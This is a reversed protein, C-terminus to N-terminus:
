MWSREEPGLGGAGAVRPTASTGRPRAPAISGEHRVREGEGLSSSVSVSVAGAGGDRGAKARGVRTPSALRSVVRDRVADGTRLSREGSRGLNLERRVAVTRARLGLGDSVSGSGAAAWSSGGGGGDYLPRLPIEAHRLSTRGSGGVLAGGLTTSAGLALM